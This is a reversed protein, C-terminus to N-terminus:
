GETGNSVWLEVGYAACHRLFGASGSPDSNLWNLDRVLVADVEGEAVISRLQDLVPREVGSGSGVERLRSEEDSENEERGIVQGDDDVMNMVEKQRESAWLGPMWEDLVLMLSRAKGSGVESM